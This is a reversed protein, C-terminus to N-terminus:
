RLVKVKQFNTVKIKRILTSNPKLSGFNKIKGTLCQVLEYKVKWSSGNTLCRFTESPNSFQHGQGQGELDFQGEFKFIQIIRQSHNM